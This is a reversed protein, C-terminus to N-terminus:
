LYKSINVRVGICQDVWKGDGPGGARNDPVREMNSATGLPPKGLVDDILDTWSVQSLSPFIIIHIAPQHNLWGESFYSKTLQSSSMGLIEPFIFNMAVLGGVLSSIYLWGWVSPFTFWGQILLSKSKWRPIVHLMINTNTWSCFFCVQSSHFINQGSYGHYLRYRHFM